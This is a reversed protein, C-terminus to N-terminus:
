SDGGFRRIFESGVNDDADSREIQTEAEGYWAANAGMAIEEAREKRALTDLLGLMEGSSAATHGARQLEGFRLINPDTQTRQYAQRVISGGVVYVRDHFLRTEIKGSRSMSKLESEDFGTVKATADYTLLGRERAEIDIDDDVWHWGFKRPM